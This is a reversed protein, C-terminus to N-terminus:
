GWSSGGRGSDDALLADLEEGAGFIPSDTIDEVIVREMQAMAAGCATAEGADVYEFFKLFPLDFNKHAVIQLKGQSPDFLQLNGKDADTLAIAAELIDQLLSGFDYGKIYRTNARRKTKPTAM